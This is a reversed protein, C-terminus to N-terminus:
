VPKTRKVYDPLQGPYPMHGPYVGTSLPMDEHQRGVVIRLGDDTDFVFVGTKGDTMKILVVDSYVEIKEITKGELESVRSIM